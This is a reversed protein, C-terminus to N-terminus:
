KIVKLQVYLESFGGVWYCWIRECFRTSINAFFDIISGIFSKILYNPQDEIRLSWHLEKKKLKFKSKLLDHEFTRLTFAKYHTPDDWALASSFHPSWINVIAGPKAVRHIENMVALTNGLHELSHTAYIDDFYNSKLPWPFKNLDHIVDAQSDKNHDIGIAGKVKKNGCGMDLIKM